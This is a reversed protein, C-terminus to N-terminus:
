FTLSELICFHVWSVTYTIFDQESLILGFFSYPVEQFGKVPFMGIDRGILGDSKGGFGDGM